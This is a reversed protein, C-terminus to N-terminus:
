HAAGAPGYPEELAESLKEPSQWSLTELLPAALYIRYGLRPSDIELRAGEGEGAVRVLVAAFENSIETYDVNGGSGEPEEPQEASGEHPSQLSGALEQPSQWSLSELSRFLM